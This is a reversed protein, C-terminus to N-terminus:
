GGYRYTTKEMQLRLVCWATTVLSVCLVSSFNKNGRNCVTRWVPVCVETVTCYLWSTVLNLKMYNIPHLIYNFLTTDMSNL